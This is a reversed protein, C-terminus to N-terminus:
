KPLGRADYLDATPDGKRMEAPLREAVSRGIEVLRESLPAQRAARVRDRRERISVTVAESMTEGTLDALERALQHADHTKINLAM